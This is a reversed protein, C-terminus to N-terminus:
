AVGGFPAYELGHSHVQFRFPGNFNARVCPKVDRSTLKNSSYLCVAPVLKYDANVIPVDDSTLRSGIDIHKRREKRCFFLMYLILHNLQNSDLVVVLFM